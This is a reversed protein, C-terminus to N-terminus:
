LPNGAAIVTRAVPLKQQCGFWGTIKVFTNDAEAFRQQNHEGYFDPAFNLRDVGDM